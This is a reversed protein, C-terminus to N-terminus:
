GGVQKEFFRVIDNYFAYVMLLGLLCIGVQQAMERYRLAVPKRIVAEVIFFLLHGGDLVPVPLLNLVGLNISLVALFALFSGFGEQAQQGAMQAIMIPGGINRPSVDGLLMKYFALLTLKSYDYTQSFARVIALGANGKEITVHSNIGILWDDKREGFVNRGEKRNPQVSVSVTEAGRRVQLTLAKGGSAKITASLEDWEKVAKGDIAVIRDDKLLGAKEAPSGKEVGNIQTSMVPVGYFTYVVMLLLVALLLNFGPGAIVIAIRKLLSKHAFSREIDAPSVEEDPDEGIMKVYGGLPFASLAYETEGKKKVLLKPGFGISFTLVGVGSLKALLFHGFEHFVILVGLGLVAAIISYAVSEM